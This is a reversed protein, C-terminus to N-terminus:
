APSTLAAILVGAAVSVNLSTVPGQASLKCLVDCKQQTLRRLGKEENGLVLVWPRDRDVQKVDDAAHESAGLIWLGMKKAQQLSRALNTQISFPVCEMGGSAVDYVTEGLPASRDSTLVIGRVGFFAASRFIAGVNHPDQICDLAVWLGRGGTGPEVGAFLEDLSIGDRQKVRACAAGTRGSKGAQDKPRRRSTEQRSARRIVPIRQQAALAVVGAWAGSAQDTHLRIEVVDRPRTELAALVSHPNRLELSV